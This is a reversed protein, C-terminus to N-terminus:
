LALELYKNFSSDLWVLDEGHLIWFGNIYFPGLTVYRPVNKEEIAMIIEGEHVVHAADARSDDIDGVSFDIEQVARYLKGPQLRTYSSVRNSM